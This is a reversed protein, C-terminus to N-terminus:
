KRASDCGLHHRWILFGGELGCIYEGQKGVKDGIELVKWVDEDDSSGCWMVRSSIDMVRSAQKAYHANLIWKETMTWWPSGSIYYSTNQNGIETTVLALVIWTGDRYTGMQAQFLPTPTLWHAASVIPFQRSFLPKIVCCFSMVTLSYTQSIAWDM